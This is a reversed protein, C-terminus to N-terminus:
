QKDELAIDGRERLANQITDFVKQSLERGERRRFWQGPAFLSVEHSVSVVWSPADPDEEDEGDVYSVAVWIPTPSDLWIGWGYDEQLPEGAAFGRNAMESQLWRAIASGPQGNCFVHDGEPQTPFALTYFAVSLM